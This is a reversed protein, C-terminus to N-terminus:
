FDPEAAQPLPAVEYELFNFNNEACVGESIPRAVRRFRQMASWPTTFAGPGDVSIM